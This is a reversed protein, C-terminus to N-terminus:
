QKEIQQKGSLFLTSKSTYVHLFALCPVAIFLSSFTGIIVGITMVFAFSFITAGGFIVLALLAILTTISTMLTRSLTSNLAGTIVEKFSLRGKNKMDERIRDFIIITDNLSYGIITMLAAITHLDIQLPVHLLHLISITSLTFILDYALGCTAAIAYIWEFRMSIYLMICLLALSLGIVAHNKMASSMQGTVNVWTTDLIQKSKPLVQVGSSELTQVIWDLKPNAEYPYTITKKDSIQLNPFAPHNELNKAFFIRLHNQPTLERVQISQLPIGAKIFANEAAQRYGNSRDAQLEVTCAFGGTFDMGFIGHRNVMFSAIGFILIISSGLACKKAFVLFPIKTKPIWNSMKLKINKKNQVWVSFFYKTMFLATFMSSIIGIILTIAFGKIPGSDFQLLIIAAIITTLNSDLIASYAKSYGAQLAPILRKSISFEEKIREFVLVNADVAMGVTLIIGAISSLTLTAQLNQLIAWMILLNFLVAIAAVVGSFRYYIIMVGMVLMLALAAAFLGQNREKMGLEPSINKESLIQPVFSLSGAKLDSELKHIERQSFNGTISIRDSLTSELNPASIIHDNFLVAMRWGRGQSYKEFETGLIKDQAFANTWINLHKRPYIPSQVGNKQIDKIEFSLFYGKTPDYSTAVNKINKGELSYNKFVILLPHASQQWEQSSDGRFSAIASLKDNYFSSSLQSPEAIRLGHEYLVKASESLPYSLSPGEIGYLHRYAIKNLSVPDKKGTILAENWIEQLFSEVYIGLDPNHTSFKENVVHFRMTSAQILDSASIGQASPFDLTILSGEQRIAIDSMGLKNVRAHLEHISQEIDSSNTVTQGNIDQLAVQVTKGGSLDLGWHLIKREDGRFYKKWSLIFNNVLTNKIPKPVNYKKSQTPLVTSINYEDQMRLLSEHMETEIQNQKLLRQQLDTCELIAYQNNGVAYFDERTAVLLPKYYNEKEFILGMYQSESPISSSRYGHHSLLKRLTKLDNFLLNLSEQSEESQVTQIIHDIGRVFIYFSNNKLHSRTNDEFPSEQSLVPTHILLGLRNEATSLSLYTELDWIPFISPHLKPHRPNWHEQIIKKTLTAYSKAAEQLNLIIISKSNTLKNLNIHFKNENSTINQNTERTIRAIEDYILQHLHEKRTLNTEMNYLTEIDPYLAIHISENEWDMSLSSILPHYAAVNIQSLADRTATHLPILLQQMQSNSIKPSTVFLTSEYKKLISIASQISSIKKQILLLSDKNKPTDINETLYNEIEIKKLKYQDQITHLTQFLTDTVTSKSSFEQQLLHTLCRALIKPHEAFIKELRIVQHILSFITEEQFRDKKLSILIHETSTNNQCVSLALARIRNSILDLYADSPRNGDFKECFSFFRSLNNNEFHLPIMRQIVVSTEGENYDPSVSFLKAPAFPILSGAKPLNIFFKKTERAKAFSVRIWQPQEQDIEVNTPSIQLLACFNRIWQLSDDELANIRNSITSCIKKAEKQEIPKQLPNSYFFITPLINYCTLVIVTFILIKQWRFQQEM